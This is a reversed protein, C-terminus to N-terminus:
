GQSRSVGPCTIFHTLRGAAAGDRRYSEFRDAACITCQRHETGVHHPEVGNKILISTALRAPDFQFHDPRGPVIADEVGWSYKEAISNRVVVDVEYCCGRAGPGVSVRLEAGKAADRMADIGAELVGDALGRWGAHIAGVASGDVAAVLVPVCDATVMGVGIGPTTTLVIDAEPRALGEDLLSVRFVEKGHVQIPFATKEPAQTGKQGFGHEIELGILVHDCLFDLAPRTM